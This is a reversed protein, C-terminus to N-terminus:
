RAHDAPASAESGVTARVPDVAAVAQQVAWLVRRRIDAVQETNYRQIDKLRANEDAQEASRWMGSLAEDVAACNTRVLLSMQGCKQCRMVQGSIPWGCSRESHEYKCQGCEWRYFGDAIHRYPALYEINSADIDRGNDDKYQAQQLSM